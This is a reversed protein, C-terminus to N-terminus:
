DRLICDEMASGKFNFSFLFPIFRSSNISIYTVNDAEIERMYVETHVPRCLFAQALDEASSHEVFRESSYWNKM